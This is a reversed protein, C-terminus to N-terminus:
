IVQKNNHTRKYEMITENLFKRCQRAEAGRETDGADKAVEKFFHFHYPTLKIYWVDSSLEATSM